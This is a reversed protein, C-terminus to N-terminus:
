GLMPKHSCNSSLKRVDYGVKVNGSIGLLPSKLKSSTRSDGYKKLQTFLFALFSVYQQLLSCAFVALLHCLLSSCCLYTILSVSCASYCEFLPVCFQMCAHVPNKGFAKLVKSFDVHSVTAALAESPRIISVFM